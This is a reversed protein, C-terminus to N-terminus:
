LKIWPDLGTPLDPNINGTLAKFFSIAQPLFIFPIGNSANAAQKPVVFSYDAHEVADDSFTVLTAGHAKIDALLNNQHNREGPSVAAIVLTKDDVLVIPGHRVDLVHFYRSPLLSIETFALAGEEAIGELEGDALVVVKNWNIQAIKELTARHAEMFEPGQSIVNKLSQLLAKDDSLIGTFMMASLYLNTVCRTQCVSEDFAWPLELNLGAISALESDTKACLSICPIGMEKKAKEVLLLVESTSGSRSISVFLTDKLMPKYSEFNILLDGASFAYCPIGLRLRAALAASKSLSYSSGCGIFIISKHGAKGYYDKLLQAKSQMYDYTGSLAEYQSFIEKETLYM